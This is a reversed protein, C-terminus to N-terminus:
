SRAAHPIGVVSPGARTDMVQPMGKGNVPEQSPISVALIYVRPKGPKGGVHAMYTHGRSLDIQSGSRLQDFLDVPAEVFM